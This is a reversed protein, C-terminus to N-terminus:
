RSGGRTELDPVGAGEPTFTATFDLTALRRTIGQNGPLRGRSEGLVLPIAVVAAVLIITTVAAQSYLSIQEKTM